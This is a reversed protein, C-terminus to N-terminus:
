AALAAPPAASVAGPFHVTVTTGEGFASDIAVTGGHLGALAKVLALGLGTGGHAGSYANDVREFPRFLRELKDGAIGPGDDRVWLVADSGEASLGIEVAGGAQTFKVANGALNLAIQRFARADVLIEHPARDLVLNLTQLKERARPQLLRAVQHLTDAVDVPQPAVQMRGAEIKAIDLLDNILALLHAGSDNIDEAYSRYRADLEGFLGSKMIDSFGIIANLPTRLEHSMNALFNSKARSAEEAEDRAGAITAVLGENLLRTEIMESISASLKLSSSILLGFWLPGAIALLKSLDSGSRLLSPLAVMGLMLVTPLYVARHASLRQGYVAVVSILIVAVIAERAVAVEGTWALLGWSLGALTYVAAYADRRAIGFRGTLQGRPFWIIALHFGLAVFGQLVAWALVSVDIRSALAPLVGSSAFLVIATWVPMQIRGLPLSDAVLDLRAIEAANTQDAVRTPV